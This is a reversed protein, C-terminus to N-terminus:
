EREAEGSSTHIKKYDEELKKTIKQIDEVDKIEFIVTQDLDEEQPNRRIEKERELFDDVDMSQICQKKYLKWDACIWMFLGLLVGGYSIWPVGYTILKIYTVDYPYLESLIRLLLVMPVNIIILHIGFRKIEFLINRM